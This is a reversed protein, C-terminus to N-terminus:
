ELDHDFFKNLYLGIIICDYITGNIKSYLESSFVQYDDVFFTATLVDNEDAVLSISLNDDNPFKISSRIHQM